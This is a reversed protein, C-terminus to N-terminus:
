AIAQWTFPISASIAGGTTNMAARFTTTTPTDWAPTLGGDGAAAITISVHVPSIGLSHTVTVLANTSSSFTFTGSGRALGLNALATTRSALDSLNNSKAVAGVQAATYDGTQPTVAGTRGAFSTVDGPPAVYAGDWWVVRMTRNDSVLVVCQAGPQPLAAGNGALWDTIKWFVQNNWDPVVYLPDSFSSPAPQSTSITAEMVQSRHPRGNTLVDYASTM